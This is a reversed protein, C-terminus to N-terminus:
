EYLTNIMGADFADTGNATTVRIRDLTASTSKSFGGISLTNVGSATGSSNIMWANTTADILTITVIGAFVSAASSTATLLAGITEVTYVAPSYASGVYGTAEIGGVDGLQVMLNSTGNTSVNNLLITIRKVWSPISTFDISTGSTSAQQAQSTIVSGGMTPTNITPSTLTKNTLTQTDTTGVVTGATNAKGGPPLTIGATGDLILSM